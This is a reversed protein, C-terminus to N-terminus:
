RYPAGEDAKLLRTGHEPGIPIKAPSSTFLETYGCTRCVYAVLAGSYREYDVRIGKKEGTWFTEVDEVGHTISLPRLFSHVYDGGTAGRERLLSQIIEQGSCRRCPGAPRLVPLKELLLGLAERCEQCLGEVLLSDKNCGTCTAMDCVEADNTFALM